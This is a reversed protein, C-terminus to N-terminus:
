GVSWWCSACEYGFEFDELSGRDYIRRHRHVNAGCSQCRRFIPTRDLVEFTEVGAAGLVRRSGWRPLGDDDLEVLNLDGVVTFPDNVWMGPLVIHAFYYTIREPKRGGAVSVRLGWLAMNMTWAQELTLGALPGDADPHVVLEEAAIM